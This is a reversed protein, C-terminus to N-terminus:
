TSCAEPSALFDLGAHLQGLLMHHTLLLWCNDQKTRPPQPTDRGGPGRGELRHERLTRARARLIRRPNRTEM